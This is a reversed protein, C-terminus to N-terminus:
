YAEKMKESLNKINAEIKNIINSDNLEKLLEERTGYALKSSANLIMSPHLINLALYAKGENNIDKQVSLSIAKAYISKDTNAFDEAFDRFYGKDPIEKEVRNKMTEITQKLSDKLEMVIDKGSFKTKNINNLHNIKPM